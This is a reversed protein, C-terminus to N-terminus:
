SSFLAALAVPVLGGLITYGIDALEPTGRGTLDYLEKGVGALVVVFLTLLAPIGIALSIAAIAFGAIFHLQKDKPINM